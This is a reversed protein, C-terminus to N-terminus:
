SKLLRVAIRSKGGEQNEVRVVSGHEETGAPEGTATSRTIFLEMGVYWRNSASQVLMGTQTINVTTCDEEDYGPRVPRVRVPQVLPVRTESRIISRIRPTARTFSLFPVLFLGTTLIYLAPAAEVHFSNAMLMRTALLPDNPTSLTGSNILTATWSQLDSGMRLILLIAMAGCFCGAVSIAEFLKRRFAFDLLAIAGCGLAALILWGAVPAFRLSLPFDSPLAITPTEELYKGSSGLDHASGAYAVTAL